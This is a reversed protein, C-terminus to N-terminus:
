FCLNIPFREVNTNHNRALLCVFFVTAAASTSAAVLCATAAAVASKTAALAEPRTALAARPACGVNSGGPVGCSQARGILGRAAVFAALLVAAKVAVSDRWSRRAVACASVCDNEHENAPHELTNLCFDLM